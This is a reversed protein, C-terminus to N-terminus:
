WTKEYRNRLIIAGANAVFLVFLLVVIAAPALTDGFAGVSQRSWSFVVVPLATYPGTARELVTADAAAGFFGTAVGIVILPATEGFARALTLVTGTLIGPAASPLVHHRVVEWPTAGVGVGAERISNPVARIAEASTIIIIPLVLVALTLGASFINKGGTQGGLGVVDVLRVFIALGLLGYVISPVGALNRINTDVFRTWRNDPAYEELYIAAGIGIPFAVVAVVATIAISGVIATSVGATEPNLSLGSTVFDFGRARFTPIAGSVIDGLLVVLVLLSSLLLLLMGWEFVLGGVNLRKGELAKRVVTTTDVTGTAM